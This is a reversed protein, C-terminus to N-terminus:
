FIAPSIRRLEILRELELIDNNCIEIALDNKAARIKILDFKRSYLLGILVSTELKYFDKANV